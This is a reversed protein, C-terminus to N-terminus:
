LELPICCACNEFGYGRIGSSTSFYLKVAGSPEVVAGVSKGFRLSTFATARIDTKPRLYEPLVLAADSAIECADSSTMSGSVHSFKVIIISTAVVWCDAKVTCGLISVNGGGLYSPSVSYGVDGDSVYIFREGEGRGHPIIAPLAVYRILRFVANKVTWDRSFGLGSSHYFAANRRPNKCELRPPRCM